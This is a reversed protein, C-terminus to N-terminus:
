LRVTFDLPVKCVLVGFGSSDGYCVASGFLSFVPGCDDEKQNCDDDLVPAKDIVEKYTFEITSLKETVDDPVSFWVGPYSPNCTIIEMKTINVNKFVYKGNTPEM